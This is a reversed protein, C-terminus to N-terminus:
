QWTLRSQATEERDSIVVADLSWESVGDLWVARAEAVAIRQFSRVERALASAPLASRKGNLTMTLVVGRVRVPKRGENVLFLRILLTEGPKVAAPEAEFELRGTLDPPRRTKVDATDFGQIEGAGRASAVTTKGTVFARAPAAPLPKASPAATTADPEPSSSALKTPRRASAPSRAARRARDFGDRAELFGRTAEAFDGKQLAAEAEKATADARAFAESRAARAAEADDRSRAMSQGADEARSKFASNLRESLAAAVPHRPDLELLRALAASAKESEGEDAAQQAERAAAEVEAKKATAQGRLRRAQSNQGDLKLIRDAQEIAGAYNKDDLERAALQLQTEVLAQTLAGVQASSADAAPAPSSPSLAPRSRTWVVYSIALGGLLLLGLGGGLVLPLRSPRGKGAHAMSPLPTPTRGTWTGPLKPWSAPAVRVDLASSGEVYPPPGAADPAGEPPEKRMAERLARQSEGALTANPGRGAELAQRAVALAARMQRVSQFRAAKDKILAKEVVEAVIPPVEPALDCLARPEKHVVQFLVGPTSEADFPKFATLAEYFVAGAAFVDSRADIKDGLAQEPSMYNPTGLVIGDQTMESSPLRALGFDVIKVQGNPQIHINAPKLDRHVVGKSHAFALGALVQDLVRLKDELAPLDGDALADRLDKGELLEMAMYILGKEEGFDHVTVINPHSLLAAAQAERHFRRRSEETAGLSYSLTKVAVFRGLVPDQAKFVRGMTGRGIESLIRYKGVRDFEM